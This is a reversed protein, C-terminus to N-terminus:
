TGGGPGAERGQASPAETMSPAPVRSSISGAGGIEQAPLSYKGSSDKWLRGDKHMRWMTPRVNNPDPEVGLMQKILDLIEAPEYTPRSGAKMVHLIMDPVTMTAHAIAESAHSGQEPPDSAVGM